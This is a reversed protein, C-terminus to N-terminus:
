MGADGIFSSRKREIRLLKTATKESLFTVKVDDVKQWRSLDFVSSLYNNDETLKTEKNM